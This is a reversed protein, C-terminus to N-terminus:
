IGIPCIIIIEQHIWVFYYGKCVYNGSFTMSNHLYWLSSNRTNLGSYIDHMMYCVVVMFSSIIAIKM